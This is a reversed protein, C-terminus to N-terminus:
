CENLESMAGESVNFVTLVDDERPNMKVVNEKVRKGEKKLLKM